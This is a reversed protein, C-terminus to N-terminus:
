SCANASSCVRNFPLCCACHMSCVGDTLRPNAGRSVLYQVAELEGFYAAKGLPYMADPGQRAGCCLAGLVTMMNYKM